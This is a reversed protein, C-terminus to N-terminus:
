QSEAARQVWPPVGPPPEPSHGRTVAWRELWSPGRAGIYRDPHRYASDAMAEGLTVFRYGRATMMGILPTMYDANLWNAHLLLTHAIPRGFLSLSLRESHGFVEEMYRIYDEGLRRMLASDARARARDYAAAYVFEDNDITVPAVQYRQRSFWQDMSDRAQATRGTNLTPHRFWRLTKGRAAMLPRTIQEGRLIDAQFDETNASYFRLHSYSHNGLEHGADLWATLLGIREPKEGPVADLKGENVFGIAPVGLYSLQDLLRTTMRRADALSTIRVAPLDDITIAVRHGAGAQAALTLLVATLM